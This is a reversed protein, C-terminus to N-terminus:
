SSMDVNVSSTLGQLVTVNVSKPKPFSPHSVVLTVVQSSGTAGDFFLVFTGDDGTTYGSRPVHADLETSNVFTTSLAAGNLEVVAGQVFGTGRVVLAFAASGASVSSPDLSTIGPAAAVPLASANSAAGGPNSVTISLSGATAVLAATVQATLESPGLFETTVATAGVKVVVGSVFGSGGVTLTFDPSGALVTAPELSNIAPTSVVTVNQTNSNQAPPGPNAVVINLSGAAAVDGAPVPASLQTSSVWTTAVATGNLEVVANQAFGSGSVVLTFAPSGATVSSPSVTSIAPAAAVTLTLQNSASGDPNAVTITVQSAAAIQAATVKAAMGGASLFTSPLAAGNWKVEAGPLFGSGEATLTFDGDGAIVTAPDISDIVPTPVVQLTQAPSAAGNPDVVVVPFQGAQATPAATVLAGSLAVGAATITGRLLTAGAPFPYMTTPWLTTFARQGLYAATQGPDDLMKDPDSLASDPYGPWIPPQAWLTDEPRPFPLTIPINVPSYYPENAASQVNVVYSDNALDAFVFTAAPAKQFLPKRGAIQVIVDGALVNGGTYGDWFLLVVSPKLERVDPVLTKLLSM